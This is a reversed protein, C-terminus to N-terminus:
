WYDNLAEVILPKPFIIKAAKKVSRYLDARLGKALVNGKEDRFGELEIKLKDYKLSASREERNIRSTSVLQEIVSIALSYGISDDFLEPRKILTDSYDVDSRYGKDLEMISTLVSKVADTKMQLLYANFEETETVSNSVAAFLNDLTALRHFYPVTRGSTGTIHEPQIVVSNDSLDGFGIRKELALISANSYM